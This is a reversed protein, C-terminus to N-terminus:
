QQFNAPILTMDVHPIDDEIYIDTIQEFGLSSYFANLYNQAQILIVDEEWENFVHNIAKRMIMEAYGNGRHEKTVLVRGISTEKYKSNPPLIRVYALLEQDNKLSLHLSQQDYNDLEPFPCTQEVVFVDMRAKLIKYLENVSLENFKKLNWEM